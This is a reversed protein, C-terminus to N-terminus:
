DNDDSSRATLIYGEGRRTRILGEVGDSDVKKRLRQIIVEIVKSFPDLTEDWVHEAIEARSVVENSRRALYELLAFEKATLQIPTGARIAQRARTDVILDGVVIREPQITAKRRLLARVRALLEDFDFPKALYDDAGSDLGEIRDEVADRATLMLIPVTTGQGRLERCVELGNRLPLMIDLIIVDYDNVFAQRLAKEGDEALDVAYGEERLGKLLMKAANLEDEVLLLRLRDEM